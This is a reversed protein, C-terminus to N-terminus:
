KPTFFSTAFGSVMKQLRCRSLLIVAEIKHDETRPVHKCEYKGKQVLVKKIFCSPHPTILMETCGEQKTGYERETKVTRNVGLLVSM